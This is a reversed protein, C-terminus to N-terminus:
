EPTTLTFFALDGCVLPRSWFIIISNESNMKAHQTQSAETLYGPLLYGPPFLDPVRSIDPSSFLSIMPMFITVSTVFM